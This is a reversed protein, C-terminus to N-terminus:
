NSEEGNLVRAHIKTKLHVKLNNSSVFGKKCIKCVYPSKGAHQREHAKLSHSFTFSKDCTKCFFSKELKEGLHTREHKELNEKKFFKRECIKCMFKKEETHLLKHAKYSKKTSLQKGCTQCLIKKKETDNKKAKCSHTRLNGKQNFKRDCYKCQYPYVGTHIREHIQFANFMAFRKSCTKCKFRKKKDSNSDIKGVEENEDKDNRTSVTQDETTGSNTNKPNESDKTTQHILINENEADENPSSKKINIDSVDEPRTEILIIEEEIEPSEVYIVDIPNCLNEEQVVEKSQSKNLTQENTSEGSNSEDRQDQHNQEQVTNIKNERSKCKTGDQNDNDYITENQKNTDESTDIITIDGLSEEKQLNEIDIVEPKSIEIEGITGTHHQKEKIKNQM